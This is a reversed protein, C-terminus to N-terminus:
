IWVIRKCVAFWNLQGASADLYLSLRPVPVTQLLYIRGVSM